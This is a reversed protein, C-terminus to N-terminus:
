TIPNAYRSSRSHKEKFLLASPNKTPFLLLALSETWTQWMSNSSDFVSDNGAAGLCVWNIPLVVKLEGISWPRNQADAKECCRLGVNFHTYKMSFFQRTDMFVPHFIPEWLRPLTRWPIRVSRCEQLPQDWADVPNKVRSESFTFPSFNSKWLPSYYSCYQITNFLSCSALQLVETWAKWCPDNKWIDGLPWPKEVFRYFWGRSVQFWPWEMSICRRLGVNLLKVAHKRM